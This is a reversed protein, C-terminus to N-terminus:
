IIDYYYGINLSSSISNISGDYVNYTGVNDSYMFSGNLASVMIGLRKNTMNINDQVLDFTQLSETDSLTLVKVTTINEFNQDCAVLSIQGKGFITVSKLIGTPSVPFGIIYPKNYVVNNQPRLTFTSIDAGNKYPGHKYAIISDSRFKNGNSDESIIYVTYPVGDSINNVVTSTVSSDVKMIFVDNIYINYFSVVGSIPATWSLTISDSTSSSVKIGTVKKINNSMDIYGTELPFSDIFFRVKEYEKWFTIVNTLDPNYDSSGSQKIFNVPFSISGGTLKYFAIGGFTSLSKEKFTIDPVKTYDYYCKGTLDVDLNFALNNFNSSSPISSIEEVWVSSNGPVDTEKADFENTWISKDKIVLSGKLYKKPQWIEFDSYYIKNNETKTIVIDELEFGSLWQIVFKKMNSTVDFAIDISDQGNTALDWYKIANNNADFIIGAPIRISGSNYGCGQAVIRKIDTLDFEQRYWSAYSRTASYAGASGVYVTTLLSIEGVKTTSTVDIENGVYPNVFADIAKMTAGNFDDTKDFVTKNNGASFVEVWKTSTGPVDTGLTDANNEWIKGGNFVQSGHTYNKASWTEITKGDLGKPKESKRKTAVNDKVELTVDYYKTGDYFDSETVVIPSGGSLFNTYTGATDVRYWYAGTPPPTTTTTAIGLYASKMANYINKMETVRPGEPTDLIFKDGADPNNKLPIEGTPIPVIQLSM